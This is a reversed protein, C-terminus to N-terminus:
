ARKASQRKSVSEGSSALHRVRGPFGMMKPRMPKELSTAPTVVEFALEKLHRPLICNIM